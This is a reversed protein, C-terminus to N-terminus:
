EILLVFNELIRLGVAASKEPHFQCGYINGKHVSSCFHKGGYFTTSLIDGPDAPEARFSHVFYVGSKAELGNLITGRWRSEEPEDIMNWGVHPIREKHGEKLSLKTVKGRLLGLGKSYGFEEGEDMLLQMGLCIGLLPKGTRVFRSIKEILAYKKLNEMGVNFAGVGPLVVADSSLIEDEEKSLVPHAGVKKLGMLISKVNGLDYDIVCIRKNRL